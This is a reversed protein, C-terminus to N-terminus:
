RTQPTPRTNLSYRSGVPGRQGVYKSGLDPHGYPKEAPTDLTHLVFQGITMGPWLKLPVGGVNSLELTIQGLPWGPDVYGATAHILLGLRGLSSNHTPIFAETVLYLHSPSDVEICRVPQSDVQTADCVTRWAGDVIAVQGGRLGAAPTTPQFWCRYVGGGEAPIHDRRCVMGLSAVLEAIHAALEPHTVTVAVERGRYPVGATDLLGQLLALRQTRSARRYVLPIHPNDVLNLDRLKSAIDSDAQGAVDRTDGATSPTTTAALWRGLQYPNVPLRTPTGYLAAAPVSIDWGTTTLEAAIQRTTLIQMEQAHGRRVLWQHDADAIVSTNDDFVIRYCTDGLFVPSVRTVTCPDGNDDIVTDGAQIDGMTTWGSPTPIPTDLALAKGECVAVLDCPLAIREVTSGLAFQGPHLIFPQGAPLTITTHLDSPLQYPDLPETIHQNFVLFTDDLRFDVSAPQILHDIDSGDPGTIVLDGAALRRRIDADSLIGM